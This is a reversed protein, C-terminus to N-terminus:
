QRQSFCSPNPLIASQFAGISTPTVSGWQADRGFSQGTRGANGFQWTCGLERDRALTWYPYFNGPGPPPMVCGDGSTVDCGEETASLDTVFQIKPYPMGRGTTPQAQAIAGPFRSPYASTPWDAWYSTGDYDLDGIADFFVDCGTM